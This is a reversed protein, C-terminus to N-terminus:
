FPLSSDDEFLSDLDDDSAELENDQLRLDDDEDDFELGGESKFAATKTWVIHREGGSVRIRDIEVGRDLLAAFLRILRKSFSAADVPWTKPIKFEPTLLQYLESATGRWSNEPSDAIHELLASGITDLALANATADKQNEEMAAAVAGPQFGFSSESASAFQVFDALRPLGSLRVTDRNRIACSLADLLVGFIRPAMVALAKDLELMTKRKSKPIVPLTVLISRSLLDMRTAIDDIGNLIIPRSVEIVKEGFTTYLERTAFSGGTAIRCLADSINGKMFSLNDFSMAWNRDAAIFLDKESTPMSRKVAAFPDILSRLTNMATTKASGQEGQLILIAHPGEPKMASVMWSAVLTQDSQDAMNLVTWLEGINGGPEPNPLQGIGSPRIFKVTPSTVEYGDPGVRVCQGDDGGLDIEINDNAARAVRLHVEEEHGEFRARARITALVEKMKYEVLGRGTDEFHVRQVLDACEASSVPLTKFVGDIKANIFCEGRRNHFYTSDMEDILSILRGSSKRSKATVATGAAPATLKAAANM